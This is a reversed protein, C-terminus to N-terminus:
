HIMGSLIVLSPLYTELINQIPLPRVVMTTEMTMEVMKTAETTVLIGDKKMLNAQQPILGTSHQQIMMKISPTSYTTTSRPFPYMM